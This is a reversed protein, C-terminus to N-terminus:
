PGRVELEPAKEHKWNVKKEPTKCERSDMSETKLSPYSMKRCYAHLEESKVPILSGLM